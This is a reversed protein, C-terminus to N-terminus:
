PLHVQQKLAELKEITVAPQDAAPNLMVNALVSAIQAQPASFSGVERFEKVLLPRYQLTGGGTLTTKGRSVLTPRTLVREIYIQDMVRYILLAAERMDNRMYIQM